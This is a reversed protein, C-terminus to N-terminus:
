SYRRYEVIALAVLLVPLVFDRCYRPLPLFELVGFALVYCALRRFLPGAFPHREGDTSENYDGVAQQRDEPKDESAPCSYDLTTKRREPM